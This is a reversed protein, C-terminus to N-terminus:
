LVQAALGDRALAARPLLRGGDRLLDLADARTGLVEAGEGGRARERPELAELGRAGNAPLTTHALSLPRVMPRVAEAQPAAATILTHAIHAPHAPRLPSRGADRGRALYPLARGGVELFGHGVQCVHPSSSSTSAWRM